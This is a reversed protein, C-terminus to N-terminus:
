QGTESSVRSANWPHNPSTPRGSESIGRAGRAVQQDFQEATVERHHPGCLNRTNSDVDEGGKALPVIHDVFKAEEVRGEDTCMECLGNTRKLRRLRQRQGARGRLREGM